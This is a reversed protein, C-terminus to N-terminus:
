FIDELFPISFSMFTLNIAVAHRTSTFNISFRNRFTAFHECAMRSDRYLCSMKNKASIIETPNSSLRVPTSYSSISLWHLSLMKVMENSSRKKITYSASAAIRHVGSARVWRHPCVVSSTFVRLVHSVSLSVTIASLTFSHVVIASLARTTECLRM